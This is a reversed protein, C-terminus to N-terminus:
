CLKEVVFVGNIIEGLMVYRYATLINQKSICCFQMDTEPM